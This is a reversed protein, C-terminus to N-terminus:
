RLLKRRKKRRRRKRMVPLLKLSRRSMWRKRLRLPSRLIIQIQIMLIGKREGTELDLFCVM